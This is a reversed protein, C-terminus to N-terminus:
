SMGEVERMEKLYEDREILKMGLIRLANYVDYEGFDM